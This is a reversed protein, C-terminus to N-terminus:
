GWRIENEPGVDHLWYFNRHRFGYDRYGVRFVDDRDFRQYESHDHIQELRWTSFAMLLRPPQTDGFRGITFSHTEYYVIIDNKTFIIVATDTGVKGIYDAGTVENISQRSAGRFLFAHEWEFNALEGLTIESAGHRQVHSKVARYVRLGGSYSRDIQIIEAFFLAGLVYAM